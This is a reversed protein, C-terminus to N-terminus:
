RRAKKRRSVDSLSIDSVISEARQFGPRQGVGGGLPGTSYDPQTQTEPLDGLDFADEAVLPARAPERQEDEGADEQERARKGGQSAQSPSDERLLTALADEEDEAGGAEGEREEDGEPTAMRPRKSPSYLEQSIKTPPAARKPRTSARSQQMDDQGEDLEDDEELESAKAKGKARTKKARESTAAKQISPDKSMVTILRKQYARVPEWTKSTPSVEIECEDLLSDLTTKAKLASRGDIGMLLHGLAKFFSLARNRDDKRKAHELQALKAIMWKLADLHIRLHDDTPMQAVIALHAGRVIIVGQLHRGLSILPEDTISPSDPADIYLECAGRLSDVVVAAVLDSASGYNGEDRLDHLLLRVHEDFTAGLRGWHKVLVVYHRLDFTSSHLVRIFPALVQEFRREAVLQAQEKANDARIQAATKRRRKEQKKPAAKKGKKAAAKKGKGKKGRQSQSREERETDSGSADEDSDPERQTEDKEEDREDALAEAYREIQAEIYGACRAQLEDSPALKLESLLGNPDAEVSTLQHTMTYIDLLVALSVQKVGECANTENGVAYEELKDLFARRRESLAIVAALDTKEAQRAEIAVTCLLWTLHGALVNIAHEVMCAEAKYGLRGRNAIGDLIDLASTVKGGDTDDLTANLNRMKSIKEIRAVCATLAHCEDDAFTAGEVDEGAMTRLTSVLTEELEALKTQNTASLNKAAVFHALTTTAQDLVDAQTHKLFQKRVDDWLSEYASIQQMDLYLDLLILRPIALIDIIRSAYTQNRSFLKPLAEVVARSITAQDEEEREKEKKTTASLSTVRTLCALLIEVFLTEEEETLRVDEPLQDDKDAEEEEDGVEDLPQMEEDEHHDAKKKGKGRAAVKGKGKKDVGNAEGGHSHDKLLYALMAEWDQFADISDWLAEVALASRGRPIAASADEDAGGIRVPLVHAVGLKDLEDGGNERAQSGEDDGGEDGGEADRAAPSGDLQKGYKVLLEALVKFEVARTLAEEDQKKGGKKRGKATKGKANMEGQKEEVADKFLGQVFDAAAVRVRKEREFILLAVEDRQKEDELLGQANIQHVVHLAQIRVSIDHEGIAMDVLQQKFRDTFHTLKGIYASKQYLSFLARVSERRAEKSEDSLVWGIYRLYDGDIWYDPDTKMWSGLASICEARIVADADRYRNVFVSTYSEEMFQEVMELKEHAEKVQKEMDKLRAKDKRGKKEEAEKARVRQAHQKRVDVHLTSLGNVSLLVIVTATHRFARIQSSSLAHVWSSFQEYFSTSYLMDDVATESVLKSLFQALSSRFKKYTKSKSILPHAMNTEQKFEDVIDKLNEVIGNEDEAQHEDITSNCGCCRLIFNVLEAMAPGSDEKYSEIWDEVVTKLATNPDKVANFLGNDDEVKFDKGAAGGGAAKAVPTHFDEDEDEAAAQKNRAGGGAAKRGGASARPKKASAGNTGPAARKRSGTKISTPVKFEADDKEEDEGEDLEDEDDDSFGNAAAKGSSAGLRQIEKRVRSSKRRGGAGGKKPSATAAPAPSSSGGSDSSPM